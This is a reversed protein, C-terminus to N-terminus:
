HCHTSLLEKVENGYQESFNLKKSTNFDVCAKKSEGLKLYIEGRIMYAYSNTPLLSISKQIDALAEEFISMKLKSYARNSLAIPHSPSLKLAKNFYSLAKEYQHEKQFAFGLNVVTAVHSPHNKILEHLIKKAKTYNSLEINLAALLNLADINSPERQLVTKLIMAADKYNRIFFKTSALKMKYDQLEKGTVQSTIKEYDAIAEKYKKLTLYFEARANLLLINNPFLLIAENLTQFGLNFKQLNILYEYKRLYFIPPAMNGEVYIAKDIHNLALEFKKNLAFNHASKYYKNNTNQGILNFCFLFVFVFLWINYRVRYMM